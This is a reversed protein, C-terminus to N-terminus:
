NRLVPQTLTLYAAKSCLDHVLVRDVGDMRGNIQSVCANGIDRILCLEPATVPSYANTTLNIRYSARNRLSSDQRMKRLDCSWKKLWSQAISSRNTSLKCSDAWTEASYGD